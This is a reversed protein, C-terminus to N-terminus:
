RAVWHCNIQPYIVDGSPRHQLEYWDTCARYYRVTPYVTIRTPRRHHRLAPEALPPAAVQAVITPSGAIVPNVATDTFGLAAVIAIL